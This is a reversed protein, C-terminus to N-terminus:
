LSALTVTADAFQAERGELTAHTNLLRICQGLEHHANMLMVAYLLGEVFGFEMRSSPNVVRTVIHADEPLVNGVFSLHINGAHISYIGPVSLGVHAGTMNSGAIMGMQVASAWNGLVLPKGRADTRVAVDGAAFIDEYPSMLEMTTPIGGDVGGMGFWSQARDIGIGVAVPSPGFTGKPTTIIGGEKSWSVNEVRAQYIVKIGMTRLADDIIDASEKTMKKRFLQDNAVLMTAESGYHHAINALEIGIFGGGVISWKQGRLGEAAERLRDADALTYLHYLQSSEQEGEHALTRPRGGTTICLKGFHYKKGEETVVWKNDHNLEVIRCGTVITVGIAVFHDRTRLFVEDRTVEGKVYSPLMVRSYPLEADASLIAVSAHVERRRITEACSVGAAGGGIILYEFSQERLEGVQDGPDSM